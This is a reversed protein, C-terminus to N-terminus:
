GPACRTVNPMFHRLPSTRYVEAEEEYDAMKAFFKLAFAEMGSGDTRRAFQVVAQGAVGIGPKVFVM